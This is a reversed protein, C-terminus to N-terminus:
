FLDNESVWTSVEKVMEFVSGANSVACFYHERVM